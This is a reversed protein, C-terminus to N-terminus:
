DIQKRFQCVFGNSLSSVFIQLGQEPNNLSMIKDMISEMVENHYYGVDNTRVSFISDGFIYQLEFLLGRHYFAQKVVGKFRYEICEGDHIAEAFDEM